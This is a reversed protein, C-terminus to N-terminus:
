RGRRKGGSKSYEPVRIYEGNRVEPDRLITAVVDGITDPPVGHEAIWQVNAGTDLVRETAVLGPDVNIAHLGMPGYELALMDAMRHFAAKTAAYVLSWGGDPAPRPPTRQGAESTINIITGWRVTASARPLAHRIFAHTLLMPSLLNGNVRRHIDGPESQAFLVDNGPGVYIANNVLVDITGGAAAVCRLFASETQEVDLIDHYVAVCSAGTGRVAATTSELSGSLVRGTAPNIASGEKSTRGTVVLDFGSRGLSIAIARGIGRSAGTVLAVPRRFEPNPSVHPPPKPTM